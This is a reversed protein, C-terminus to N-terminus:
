RVHDLIKKVHDLFFTLNIKGTAFQDSAAVIEAAAIREMEQVIRSKEIEMKGERRVVFLLTHLPRSFRAFRVPEPRALSHTITTLTDNKEEGYRINKPQLTM